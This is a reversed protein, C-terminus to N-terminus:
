SSKRKAHREQYFLDMLKQSRSSMRGKPTKSKWRKRTPTAGHEANPTRSTRSTRSRRSRTSIFGLAIAGSEKERQVAPGASTPIVPKVKLISKPKSNRHTPMSKSRKREPEVVPAFRLLKAPASETSLNTSGSSNSSTGCQNGSTFDLMAELDILSRCPDGDIKPVDPFRQEVLATTAKLDLSSQVEDKTSHKGRSISDRLKERPQDPAFRLQGAPASKTTKESNDTSRSGDSAPHPYLGAQHLRQRMKELVVSKHPVSRPTQETSSASSDPYDPQEESQSTEELRDLFPQEELTEMLREGIEDLTGLRRRSCEGRMCVITVFTLSLLVVIGVRRASLSSEHKRNALM